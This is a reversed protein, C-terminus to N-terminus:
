SGRRGSLRAKIIDLVLQNNAVMLHLARLMEVLLESNTGPRNITPVPVPEPRPWDSSRDWDIHPRSHRLLSDKSIGFRGGIDRLSGGVSLAQEIETSGSSHLRPM